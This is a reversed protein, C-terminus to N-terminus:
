VRPRQIMAHRARSLPSILATRGKASRYFVHAFGCMKLHRLPAGFTVRPLPDRLSPPGPRMPRLLTSSTVRSAPTSARMELTSRSPSADSPERRGRSNFFTHQVAKRLFFLRSRHIYVFRVNVVTSSRPEWANGPPSFRRGDCDAGRRRPLRAPLSRLFPPPQGGMGYSTHRFAPDDAIGVVLRHGARVHRGNWGFVRSAFNNRSVYGTRPSAKQLM